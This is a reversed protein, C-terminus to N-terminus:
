AGATLTKLILESVEYTTAQGCVSFVQDPGLGHDIKLSQPPQWRHPQLTLEQESRALLEFEM